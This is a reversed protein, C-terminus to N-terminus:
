AAAGMLLYRGVRWAFRAKANGGSERRKTGTNRYGDFTSTDQQKGTAKSGTTNRDYRNM